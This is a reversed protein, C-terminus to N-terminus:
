YRAGHVSEGLDFGPRDLVGRGADDAARLCPRV